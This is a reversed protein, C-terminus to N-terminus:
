LYERNDYVEQLSARNDTMDGRVKIKPETSLVTELEAVMAAIVAEDHQGNQVSKLYAECSKQLAANPPQAAAGCLFYADLRFKENEIIREIKSILQERMEERSKEM